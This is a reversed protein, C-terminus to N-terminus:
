NSEMPDVLFHSFQQTYNDSFGEETSNKSIFWAALGLQQALEFAKERGMVMFATALADARAASEDIVYAAALRHAIPRGTGPDIEHSYRVGDKEFYNRYNGSGAVAIVEGSVYFIKHVQAATDIPKEIAPVWSKGAPKNGKIKLEGGLEIGGARRLATGARRADDHSGAPQRIM